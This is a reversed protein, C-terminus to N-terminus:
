ARVTKDASRMVLMAWVYAEETEDPCEKCAAEFTMGRQMHERLMVISEYTAEPIIPEYQKVCDSPEGRCQRARRCKANACLGWLSLMDATWRMVKTDYADRAKHNPRAANDPEPRAPFVPPYDMPCVGENERRM